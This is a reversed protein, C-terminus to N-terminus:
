SKAGPCNAVFASGNAAATELVDPSTPLALSGPAGGSKILIKAGDIAVGSSDIVVFSGGVQLTIKNGSKITIDGNANIGVAGAIKKAWDGQVSEHEDGQIQSLYDGVTTQQQKGEVKLSRDQAITRQENHGISVVHDYNVRTDASNEVEVQLNKQARLYVLEQDAQDDFSLENYGEGQHTQSRLVTKTKHEPLAYASKNTAHYTRGTIIPQDPDGNLFSVIVEHGIRPIAMVGYQNGAWGQSVRVWCSSHEDQQSDRDWHFHVKVRGHEDCFIEEGKPGVVTAIMPGDVRPSSEPEAKWHQHGPIACWQNSYTTAGQGAEEELAQPQEGQHNVSVLLWDRNFASDLHDCLTFKYGARLLPENSQGSAVQSERRLYNIRARTFASGNVDDKYRGPADFHAYRAQQYDMDTGQVAQSFSYAPKKFSYDKLQVESVAAESQYRFGKIYPTDVAGGAMANYPVPETLSPHLASSDSFAITHKGEEHVFSYVIGEEAALRHLFALDTERYQVCFERQACDRELSFAYDQIGMEQLLTSIIEPVTKYQFIRSNHRLSLRELAPVLILSYLTFHHGTDGQVFSRAVGHVRQVLKQDRYMRLEVNRDVIQEATLNSQRSALDIHYCFGYCPRHHFTSSSLSEQGDFKTVVLADDSLGEVHITYALTAM